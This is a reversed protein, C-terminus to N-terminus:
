RRMLKKKEIAFEEDSLLGKKRLEALKNLQSLLVDDDLLGKNPEIKVSDLKFGNEDFKEYEPQIRLFALDDHTRIKEFDKFGYKIAQSLHFLSKDAEETMSYACALNFHLSIDKPEIELGKVFDDIAEEIEFDKYKKLGTSKYPNVRSKSSSAARRQRERLIQEQRPDAKRRRDRRRGEYQRQQNQLHRNYKRDFDRPSMTLMRVVDIMSLVVSVPFNAISFGFMMIMVYFIGAGTEGLYFRHAGAWGGFIAM